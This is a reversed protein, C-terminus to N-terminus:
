KIGVSVSIATALTAYLPLSSPINSPNEPPQGQKQRSALSETTDRRTLARKDRRGSLKGEVAPQVQLGLADSFDRSGAKKGRSRRGTLTNNM